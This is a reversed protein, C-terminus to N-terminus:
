TTKPKCINLGEDFIGLPKVSEFESVCDQVATVSKVAKKGTVGPTPIFGM